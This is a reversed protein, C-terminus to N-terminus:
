ISFPIWYITQSEGSGTFEVLVYEGQKVPSMAVHLGSSSGGVVYDRVVTPPNASDTKISASASGNTTTTKAIVFGATTAQYAAGATIPSAWSGFNAVHHHLADANSATGATLTQAEAGTIDTSGFFTNMEDLNASSPFKAINSELLWNAGQYIVSVQVGAWLDGAELESGNNKIITTPTSGNVSLTSHGTNNHTPAFVFRDGTQIAEPAPTVTIAYVNTASGNNAGYSYSQHQINKAIDSPSVFTMAGTGGTDTGARSEATTAGEVIGKVTTSANPAGVLTTDDVYKKNAVMYDTTPASSPTIPFSSFTKIGAVTQNSDIDVFNGYFQGPNSLVVTSGAAHSRQNLTVAAESSGSFALGRTCSTFQKSSSSYGSAPCVVIEANTSSTPEIVLYVKTPLDAQLIVNGRIDSVSVMTITSASASIPSALSWSVSSAPINAGLKASSQLFSLLKVNQDYTGRYGEIQAIKAVQSRETITPLHGNYYDFLTTAAQTTSVVTFIALLSFLIKALRKKFM